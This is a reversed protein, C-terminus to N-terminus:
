AAPRLDRHAQSGQGAARRLGPRAQLTGLARQGATARALQAIGLPSRTYVTGEGVFVDHSKMAETYSSAGKGMRIETIGIEALSENGPDHLKMLVSAYLGAPGGRACAIRM